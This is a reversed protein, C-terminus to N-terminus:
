RKVDAMRLVNERHYELFRRQGSSFAGVNISRQSAIGMRALSPAHAVPSVILRGNGEFSIFGKDFLHDISPTLLLGNEGDLREANECDRWPKAHSAILHELRDVRTVRCASEVKQVNQRFLGQGRRSLVLARRETEPIMPDAVLEAEKRREWEELVLEPAPSVIAASSGAEAAEQIQQTEAGILAYLAMAFSASLETLYVSQLGYGNEARLPAYRSPLLPRLRDMHDM